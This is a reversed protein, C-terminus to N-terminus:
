QLRDATAEHRLSIVIRVVKKHNNFEQIRGLLYDHCVPLKQWDSADILAFGRADEANFEGKPALFKQHHV